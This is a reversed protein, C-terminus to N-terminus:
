FFANWLIIFGALIGLAGLLIPWFVSIAAILVALFDGKEFEFDADQRREKKSLLQKFMQRNKM